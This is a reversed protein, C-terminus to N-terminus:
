RGQSKSIADQTAEQARKKKREKESLEVNRATGRLKESIPTIDIGQENLYTLINDAFKDKVLDLQKKNQNIDSKGELFSMKGFPDPLQQFFHSETAKFANANSQQGKRWIDSLQTRLTNYLESIKYEKGDADKVTDRTYPIFAKMAGTVTDYFPIYSLGKQLMNRGESTSFNAADLLSHMQDIVNMAQETASLSQAFKPIESKIRKYDEKDRIAEAKIPLNPNGSKIVLKDGILDADRNFIERLEKNPISDAIKSKFEQTLGLAGAQEKKLQSKNLALKSLQEEDERGEKVRQGFVDALGKAGGGLAGLMAGKGGMLGSVILPAILAVAMLLKDQGSLNRSEIRQKIAKEQDTLRASVDDLSQSYANMAKEYSSALQGLAPDIPGLIQDIKSKLMPESLVTATAGQQVSGPEVAPTPQVEDNLPQNPPKMEDPTFANPMPPESAEANGSLIKPIFQGLAGFLAMPNLGAQMMEGNPLERNGTLINMIGQPNTMAQVAGPGALPVGPRETLNKPAPMAMEQSMPEDDQEPLRGEGIARFGNALKSWFGGDNSAPGQEISPPEIKLNARVDFNGPVPEEPLYPPPSATGSLDPNQMQSFERDARGRLRKSTLSRLNQLRLYDAMSDNVDLNNM